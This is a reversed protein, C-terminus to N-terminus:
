YWEFLGFPLGPWLFICRLLWKSWGCATNKMAPMSRVVDAEVND